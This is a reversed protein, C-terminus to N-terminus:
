IEEAVSNKILVKSVKLPLKAKDEVNFPGYSKMDEGLFKTILDSNIDEINKM